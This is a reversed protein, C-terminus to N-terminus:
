RHMAPLNNPDFTPREKPPQLVRPNGGLARHAHATGLDVGRGLMAAGGGVVKTGVEHGLMGGMVGAFSGGHHGAVGAATLGVATGATAKAAREGLGIHRGTEPDEDQRMTRIAGPVSSALFLAKKGPTYATANQAWGPLNVRTNTFPIPVRLSQKPSSLLGQIRAKGLLTNPDMHSGAAGAANGLGKWASSLAQRPNTVLNAYPKAGQLVGHGFQAASRGAWPIPNALTHRFDSFGQVADRAVGLGYQKMGFAMGAVAKGAGAEIAGLTPGAIKILESSFATFVLEDM